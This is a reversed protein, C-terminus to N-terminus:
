DNYLGRLTNIRIKLLAFIMNIPDLIANVHSQRTDKHITVPLQRISHKFKRALFLVEADFAFRQITVKAFIHKAVDKKFVKFGCQTDKIRTKGLIIFQFFRFGKALFMRYWPNSEEFHTKVLARSAIIIDHHALEPLFVELEKISVTLDADIFVIVDYQSQLVGDKVAQGKGHNIANHIPKITIHPLDQQARKIEAGTHDTSGDDVPIIEFLIGQKYLFDAITKLTEYIVSAENYCPIIVSLSSHNM